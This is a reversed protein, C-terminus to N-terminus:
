SSNFDGRVGHPIRELYRDWLGQAEEETLEDLDGGWEYPMPFLIKQMQNYRGRRIVAYHPLPV